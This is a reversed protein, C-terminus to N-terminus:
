HISEEVVRMEPTPAGMWTPRRVYQWIAFLTLPLLMVMGILNDGFADRDGVEVFVGLIQVALALAALVLPTVTRKGRSGSILYWLIATVGIVFLGLDDIRDVGDSEGLAEPGMGLGILFLFATLMLNYGRNYIETTTM